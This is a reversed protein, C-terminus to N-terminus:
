VRMWVEGRNLELVDGHWLQFTAADLQSLFASPLEFGAVEVERCITRALLELVVPRGRYGSHFRGSNCWEKELEALVVVTGRRQDYACRAGVEGGIVLTGARQALAAEDGASGAVVILGRRQYQAAGHGANGSVLITGGRQGRLSGPYCGGLNDGVSGAVCITGGRQQIGLAHGADGHIVLTGGSMEAGCEHAPSGHVEIRGRNMKRGIRHLRTLDGTFQLVGDLASGTVAFLKGVKTERNGLLLPLEKIQSVSLEQVMEPLLPSADVRTPLNELATLTLPMTHLCYCYFLPAITIRAARYKLLRHHIRIM